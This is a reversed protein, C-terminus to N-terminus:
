AYRIQVFSFDMNSNGYWDVSLGVMGVSRTKFPLSISTWQNNPALQSVEMQRLTEGNADTVTLSGFSSLQVPSRLYFDAIYLQGGALSFSCNAPGLIMSGSQSDGTVASVVFQDPRFYFSTASYLQCELWSQAPDRVDFTAINEVSLGLVSTATTETNILGETTQHKGALWSLPTGERDYQQDTLLNSRLSVSHQLLLNLDIMTSETSYLKVTLIRLLGLYYEDGLTPYTYRQESSDYVDGSALNMASTWKDYATDIQDLQLYYLGNLCLLDIFGSDNPYPYWGTIDAGIVKWRTFDSPNWLGSARLAGYSLSMYHALWNDDFWFQTFPNGGSPQGGAAIANHEHFASGSEGYSNHSLNFLPHNNADNDGTANYGNAYNILESQQDSIGSPQQNSDGFTYYAYVNSLNVFMKFTGMEGYIYEVAAKGQPFHMGYGVYDVPETFFDTGDPYPNVNSCGVGEWEKTVMLITLLIITSFM